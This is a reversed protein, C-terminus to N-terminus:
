SLRRTFQQKAARYPDTAIPAPKETPGSAPSAAPNDLELAPAMQEVVVTM